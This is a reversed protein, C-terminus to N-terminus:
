FSQCRRRQCRLIRLVLAMTCKRESFTGFSAVLKQAMNQRKKSNICNQSVIISVAFELMCFSPMKLFCCRLEEKLIQHNEDFKQKQALKCVSLVKELYIDASDKEDEKLQKVAMFLLRQPNDEPLLNMEMEANKMAEEKRGLSKLIIARNHYCLRRSFSTTDISLLSDSLNLPKLLMATDNHLTGQQILGVISDCLKNGDSHCSDMQSVHAQAIVACSALLKLALFCLKKMGTRDLDQLVIVDKIFM